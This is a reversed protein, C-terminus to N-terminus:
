GCPKKLVFVYNYTLSNLISRMEFLKTFSLRIYSKLRIYRGMFKSLVVNHMYMYVIELYPWCTFSHLCFTINPRLMMKAYRVDIDSAADYKYWTGVKLNCM